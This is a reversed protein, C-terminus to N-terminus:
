VGDRPHTVYALALKISAIAANTKTAIFRTTRPMQPMDHILLLFCIKVFRLEYTNVTYFLVFFCLRDACPFRPHAFLSSNGLWEICGVPLCSRQKAQPHDRDNSAWTVFNCSVKCSMMLARISIKIMRAATEKM